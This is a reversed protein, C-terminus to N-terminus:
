ELANVGEQGTQAGGLAKGPGISACSRCKDGRRSDIPALIDRSRDFWFRLITVLNEPAGNRVTTPVKARGAIVTMSTTM